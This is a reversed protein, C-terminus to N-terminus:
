VYALGLKRLKTWVLPDIFNSRPLSNYLEAPVEGPLPITVECNAFIGGFRASVTAEGPLPGAKVRGEADVAVLTSESSGFAALGTVDEVKGDSFRATVRLSFGEDRKLRRETPEIAIGELRPADDQSRPMGQAIWGRVTEYFPSGPELRKGGGHPVAASAKRLLLSEEPAAPFVRRGRAERTIADHDFDPDFGLLSLAFGNQGRAKGHCAGANCGARTLIPEVDREFTVSGPRETAAGAWRCSAGMLLGAIMSAMLGFFVRRMWLAEIGEDRMLVDGQLIM